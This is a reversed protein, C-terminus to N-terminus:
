PAPVKGKLRHPLILLALAFSLSLWGGFAVTRLLESGVQNIGYALVCFPFVGTFLAAIKLCRGAVPVFITIVSFAPIIWLWKQHGPMKQLDFGSLGIFQIWPLFFSILLGLACLRILNSIGSPARKKSSTQNETSSSKTPAKM